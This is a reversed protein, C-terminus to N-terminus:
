LTKRIKTFVFSYIIFFTVKIKVIVTKRKAKPHLLFFDDCNGVTVEVETESIVELPALDPPLTVLSPPLGTLEFPIQQPVDGFGVIV